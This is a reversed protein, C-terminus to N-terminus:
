GGLGCGGCGLGCGGSDSGCWGYCGDGGVGSMVFTSFSVVHFLSFCTECSKSFSKSSSIIRFKKKYMKTFEVQYKYM